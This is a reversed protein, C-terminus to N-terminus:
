WVIANVEEDTTAAEVKAKLTWYKKINENKHKLGDTYVEKFEAFTHPLPTGSAKWYIPEEVLGATIANLMGSLNIQAETDFSYTYEEGLAYCTFGALITQNCLYDLEAIKIEKTITNVGAFDFVITRNVVDVHYGHATAFEDAYQGYDLQICGVTSPVRGTLAKYFSMDQELTTEIVDGSREGTDLIVKGSSKEFFIKRGIGTM